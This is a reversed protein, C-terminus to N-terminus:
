SLASTPQTAGALSWTTSSINSIFTAVTNAAGWTVTGQNCTATYSSTNFATMRITIQTIFAISPFTIAFPGGAGTTSILIYRDTSLVAYATNATVTTVGASEQVRSGTVIGSATITTTASIAGTTTIGTTTVTAFSAAGTVGLTGGITVLGTIAASSAFTAAGTVALTSGLTTAGTVHLTGGVSLDGPVIVDDPEGNITKLQLNIPM